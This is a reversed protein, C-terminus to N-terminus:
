DSLISRSSSPPCRTRKGSLRRKDEGYATVMIVLLDPLRNSRASGRGNSQWPCCERLLARRAGSRHAAVAQFSRASQRRALAAAFPGFLAQVGGQALALEFAPPNPLSSQASLPDFPPERRDERGINRAIRPQHPLVFLACKRTQLRQAALQDVRLDGLVPRAHDLRGAVPQQDLEGADDFGDGAGDRHLVLHRSVVGVNGGVLANLKADIDIPRLHDDLVAVDMTVADIDCGPKLREGLRTADARRRDHTGL